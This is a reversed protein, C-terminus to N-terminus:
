REAWRAVLALFERAQQPTLSLREFEVRGHQVSLRRMALATGEPCYMWAYDYHMGNRAQGTLTIQAPSKGLLPGLELALANDAAHQVTEAQLAQMALRYAPLYYSLLRSSLEKAVRIPLKSASINIGSGPWAKRANYPLLDVLDRQGAVGAPAHMSCRWEIKQQQRGYHAIWGDVHAGQLLSDEGIYRFIIHDQNEGDDQGRVWYGPTLHAAITAADQDSMTGPAQPTSNTAQSM